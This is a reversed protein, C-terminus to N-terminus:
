IKVPQSVSNPICVIVENLRMFFDIWLSNKNDIFYMQFESLMCIYIKHLNIKFVCLVYMHIAMHWKQMRAELVLLLCASMCVHETWGTNSSQEYMTCQVSCHTRFLKNDMKKHWNLQVGYSCLYKKLLVIANLPILINIVIFHFLHSTLHENAHKANRQFDVWVFLCVRMKLLTGVERTHDTPSLTERMSLSMLLEQTLKQKGFAVAGSTVM